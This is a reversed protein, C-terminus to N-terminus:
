VGSHLRTKLENIAETINRSPIRLTRNWHSAITKEAIEKPTNFVFVTFKGDGKELRKVTERSALLICAVYFDHTAYEHNILNEM